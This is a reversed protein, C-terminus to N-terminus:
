CQLQPRRLCSRLHVYRALSRVTSLQFALDDFSASLAISLYNDGPLMKMSYILLGPSTGLTGHYSCGAVVESHIRHAANVMTVDLPSAPDRFQVIVADNAAIVSYSFLGQMQVPKTPGGFTKSAFENCQSRTACAGANSFFHAVLDEGRDALAM